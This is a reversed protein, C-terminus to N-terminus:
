IYQVEVLFPEVFMAAHKNNGEQMAGWLQFVNNGAELDMELTGLEMWKAVSRMGSESAQSTEYQRFWGDLLNRMGTDILVNGNHKVVYQYQSEARYGHKYANFSMAVKQKFTVKFRHTEPIPVTVSIINTLDMSNSQGSIYKFFGGGSLSYNNTFARTLFYYKKGDKITGANITLESQTPTIPVYRDGTTVKLPFYMGNYFESYDEYIPLNHVASGIKFNLKFRSDVVLAM